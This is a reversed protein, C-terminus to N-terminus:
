RKFEPDAARREDQLTKFLGHHEIADNISATALFANFRRGATAAAHKALGEGPKPVKKDKEEKPKFYDVHFRLVNGDEIADTITDAHLQKQFLDETTRM